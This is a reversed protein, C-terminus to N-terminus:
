GFIAPAGSHLPSPLSQEDYKSPMVFSMASESDNIDMHVPATMSIRTNSENGGFIFATGGSIKGANFTERYNESRYRFNELPLKERLIRVAEMAEYIAKVGHEPHCAHSQKGRAKVTFSIKGFMGNIFSFKEERVSAETVIGM